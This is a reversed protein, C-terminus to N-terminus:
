LNNHYFCYEKHYIRIEQNHDNRLISGCNPFLRLIDNFIYLFKNKIFRLSSYCLSLRNNNIISIGYNATSCYFLASIKMDQLEQINRLISKIIINIFVCGM